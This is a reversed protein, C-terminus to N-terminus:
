SARPKEGSLAIRATVGRHDSGPIDVTGASRVAIGRSTLIHDLQAFPPLRRNAPWTRPLVVGRQSHADRLGCRLLRRFPRHQRTANFDGALVFPAATDECLRRLQALHRDLIRLNALPQLTHVAVVRVRGGPADVDVQLFNGSPRGILHLPFRSFVGIGFADGGSRPRAQVYRYSRLAESVAPTLEEVVLVDAGIALADTGAEQQNPNGAFVNLAALTFPASAAHPQPVSWWRLDPACWVLQAVVVIGAAIALTRRRQWAAVGLVFWGPMLLWLTLVELAFLRASRDDLHVARAVVFVLMPIVVLWAIGVAARKIM